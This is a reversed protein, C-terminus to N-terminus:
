VIKNCWKEIKNTYDKSYKKWTGHIYTCLFEYENGAVSVGKLFDHIMNLHERNWAWLVGGRGDIQHYPESLENYSVGAARYICKTCSIKFLPNRWAPSLNSVLESDKSAKQDIAVACNGCKPCTIELRRPRIKHDYRVHNINGGARFGYKGIKTGTPNKM